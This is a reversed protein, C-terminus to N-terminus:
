GTSIRTSLCATESKAASFSAPRFTSRRAQSTGCRRSSRATPPRQFLGAQPPRRSAEIELPSKGKVMGFFNRLESEMRAADQKTTNAFGFADSAEGLGSIGRDIHLRVILWVTRETARVRILEFDTLHLNPAARLVPTLLSSLTSAVFVRRTIGRAGAHGLVPRKM